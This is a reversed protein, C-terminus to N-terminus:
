GRRKVITLVDEDTLKHSMGVMQGAHKASKGWVRAFRFGDVFEQHLIKCVAGVTSGHPVILPEEYDAEGRQPRLYLRILNLIDLIDDKLDDLNKSHEASITLYDYETPFKSLYSELKDGALDIKNIIYLGRAYHRNGELFDIFEDITPDCRITVNANVVKYEGMVYKMTAFDLHTLAHITSIAIGGRSTKKMAIDPPTKNIRIGVQWLEELILDLHMPGDFIDLIILELDANRAVSLVEKGRGKGKSAGSIIGPLDIIQIKAGRHDLIGPIAELTTFEYAGVKSEANTLRNLLTSKGVSPLGILSVVADGSRKVAFGDAGGKGSSLQRDIEERRLRSIKAKLRGIHKETSKNHATKKIEAEIDQIQESFSM